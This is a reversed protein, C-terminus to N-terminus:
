EPGPTVAPTNLGAVAPAPVNVIQYLYVDTFPHLSEAEFGIVTFGNGVTVSAANLGTQM